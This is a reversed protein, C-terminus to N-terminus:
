KYLSRQLGAALVKMLVFIGGTLAASKALKIQFNFYHAAFLSITLPCLYEVTTRYRSKAGAVAQFVEDIYPSLASKLTFVAAIFQAVKISGALALVTSASSAPRCINILQNLGLAIGGAIVIEPSDRTIAKLGFVTEAAVYQAFDSKFLFGIFAIGAMCQLFSANLQVNGVIGSPQSM